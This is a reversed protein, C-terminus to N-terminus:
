RLLVLLTFENNTRIKMSHVHDPKNNSCKPFNPEIKAAVLFPLLNDTCNHMNEEFKCARTQVNM